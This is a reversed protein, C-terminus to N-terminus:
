INQSANKMKLPKLCLMSTKRRFPWPETPRPATLILTLLLAGTVAKSCDQQKAFKKRRCYTNPYVRRAPAAYFHHLVAVDVFLIHMM